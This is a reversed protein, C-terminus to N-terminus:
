PMDFGNVMIGPASTTLPTETPRSTWDSVSFPHSRESGINGDGSALIVDEGSVPDELFLIYGEGPEDDEFGDGFNDRVILVFEGGATAPLEVSETIVGGFIYTGPRVSAWVVDDEDGPSIGIIEWSVEKHWDDFDFRLFVTVTAITPSTSLSPATTPMSSPYSESGPVTFRRVIRREFTGDSELVLFKADLTKDVVVIEYAIEDGTQSTDIGDGASDELILRYDGPTVQMEERVVITGRPYTNTPIEKIISGTDVDRVLWSIEHPFEDLYLTLVITVTTVSPAPSTTPPSPAKTPVPSFTADEFDCFFNFPSAAAYKCTMARIWDTTSTRAGVGPWKVPFQGCKHGYSWSVLGVQVDDEHKDTPTLLYPGGSDGGCQASNPDYLCIMDDSLKEDFPQFGTEEETLNQCRENEIYTLTTTEQLVTPKNSGPGSDFSGFGILTLNTNPAPVSPDLNLRVPPHKSDRELTLIMQDFSYEEFIWLPNPYRGVINIKESGDGGDGSFAGVVAYEIRDQCHAASLVINPAILSGGCRFSGRKDYLAVYYPYRGRVADQGGAIRTQPPDVTDDTNSTIDKDAGVAPSVSAFVTASALAIVIFFALRCIEYTPGVVSRRSARM